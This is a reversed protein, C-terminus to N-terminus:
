TWDTRNSELLMNAMYDVGNEILPQDPVVDKCTDELAFGILGMPASYYDLIYKMRVFIHTHMRAHTRAHSLITNMFDQLNPYGYEQWIYTGNRIRPYAKGM